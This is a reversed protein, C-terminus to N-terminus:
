GKEVCEGAEEGAEDNGTCIDVNGIGYWALEM